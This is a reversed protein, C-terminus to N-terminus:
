YNPDKNLKKLVKHIIGEVSKSDELHAIKFQSFLAQDLISNSMIFQSNQKVTDYFHSIGESSVTFLHNYLKTQKDLSPYLGKLQSSLKKNKLPHNTQNIDDLIEISRQLHISLEILSYAQMQENTLHLSEM